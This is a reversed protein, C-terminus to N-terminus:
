QHFPVMEVAVFDPRVEGVEEETEACNRQCGFAVSIFRKKTSVLVTSPIMMPLDVRRQDWDKMRLQEQHHLQKNVIIKFGEM